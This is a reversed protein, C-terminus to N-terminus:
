QAAVLVVLSPDEDAVALAYEADADDCGDDVPSAFVHIRYDAGNYPSAAARVATHGICEDATYGDPNEEGPCCWRHLHVPHRPCRSWDGPAPFRGSEAFFEALADDADPAAFVGFEAGNAHTVHFLPM